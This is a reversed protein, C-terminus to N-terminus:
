FWLLELIQAEKLSLRTSVEGATVTLTAPNLEIDKFHIIGEHVFEAPRRALARIRAVLESMEFPKPLYDDAGLDLGAVRDGVQSRATLMLVPTKIGSERLSKLIDLGNMGPLMIDLIIADYIGTVACDCGYEGDHALDVAFNNKKLVHAVAEAIQREDEIYLIRM